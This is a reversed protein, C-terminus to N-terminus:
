LRDIYNASLLGQPSFMIILESTGTTKLYIIQWHLAKMQKM